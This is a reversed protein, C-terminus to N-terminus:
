WNCRRPMFNIYVIPLYARVPILRKYQWNHDHKEKKTKYAGYKLEARVDTWHSIPQFHWSAPIRQKSARLVLQTFRGAKDPPKEPKILQQCSQTTFIILNIYNPNNRNM